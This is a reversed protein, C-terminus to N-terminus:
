PSRLIKRAARRSSLSPFPFKAASTEPLNKRWQWNGLTPDRVMFPCAVAACLTSFLEHNDDGDDDDDDNGNDNSVTQFGDLM